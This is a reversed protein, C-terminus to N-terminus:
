FKFVDPMQSVATRLQAILEELAKGDLRLNETSAQAALDLNKNKEFGIELVIMALDALNAICALKTFSTASLPDHHCGIGESLQPPFNWKEAL